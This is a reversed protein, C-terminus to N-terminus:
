FLASANGPLCAGACAVAYRLADDPSQLRPGGSMSRDRHAERRADPMGRLRSVVVTAVYGGDHTSRARGDTSETAAM